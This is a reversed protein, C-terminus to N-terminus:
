GAASGLGSQFRYRQRVPPLLESKDASGVLVIQTLERNNAEGELMRIIDRPFWAAPELARAQGSVFPGVGRDLCNLGASSGSASVNVIPEIPLKVDGIKVLTLGSLLSTLLTAVGAARIAPHVRMAALITGGAIGALSLMMLLVPVLWSRDSPYLPPRAATQQLGERVSSAISDLARTVERLPEPLIPLSIHPSHNSALWATLGLLLSGVFTVLYLLQLWVQFKLTPEMWSRPRIGAFSVADKLYQRNRDDFRIWLGLQQEFHDLAARGCNVLEANRVDLVYFVVSIFAGFFAIGVAWFPRTNSTQGYALLLVGILTLFFRLAVMRQGAHYTYWDTAYRLGLETKKDEDM